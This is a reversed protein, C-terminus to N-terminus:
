RATPVSTPWPRPGSRTRRSSSSAPCSRTELVETPKYQALRGSNDLRVRQEWVKQASFQALAAALQAPTFHAALAARAAREPLVPSPVAFRRSLAAAPTGTGRHATHQISPATLAQHPQALHRRGLLPAARIAM